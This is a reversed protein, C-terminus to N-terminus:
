SSPPEKTAFAKVLTELVSRLSKLEKCIDEMISAVNKNDDTELFQSLVYYMRENALMEAIRDDEDSLRSIVSGADSMIIPTIYLRKMPTDKYGNTHM